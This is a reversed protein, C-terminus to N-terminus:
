GSPIRFRWSDAFSRWIVIKMLRQNASFVYVRRRDEQYNRKTSALWSAVLRDRTALATAVFWDRPSAAANDKGVTFTLRRQVDDRLEAVIAKHAIDTTDIANM